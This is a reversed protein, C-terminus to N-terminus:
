DEYRLFGADQLQAVAEFGVPPDSAGLLELLEMLTMKGDIAAALAQAPAPLDFWALDSLPVTLTVRKNLPPASPAEGTAGQDPGPAPAPRTVAPVAKFALESERAFQEPDFPPPVTTPPRGRGREAAM